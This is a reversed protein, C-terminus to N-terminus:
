TEIINSILTNFYRKDSYLDITTSPDDMLFIQPRLPNKPNQEFVVATDGNSLKVCSGVPYPSVCKLFAKVVGSDFQRGASGMIYEIAENPQSPTRYPRQATLADYVDACAIIRGFFPIRKGKTHYPYGSGDIREHHSVIGNLVRESVLNKDALMDYGLKPHTRVIQFEENTLKAPKQIIEVPIKMKGMDHLLACLALDSLDKRSIRLQKGIAISLITTGLSHNYTTDDYLRLDTVDLYINKSDVDTIKNILKELAQNVHDINNVYLRETATEAIDFIEKVREIVERKSADDVIDPEFDQNDHIYVGQLDLGLLKTISAMQLTQGDKLMVVHGTFTDVGYVDRALVTGPKLKEVSVFKILPRVEGYFSFFVICLTEHVICM